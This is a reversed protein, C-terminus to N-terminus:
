HTQRVDHEGRHRHFGIRAPFLLVRLALLGICAALLHRLEATPLGFLGALTNWSWLTLPIAAVLALIAIAWGKRDHMRM